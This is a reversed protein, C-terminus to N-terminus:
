FSSASPSSGPRVCPISASRGSAPGNASARSRQRDDDSRRAGNARSYRMAQWSKVRGNIAAVAAVQLLTPLGLDALATIETDSFEGTLRRLAMSIAEREADATLAHNLRIRAAWGVTDTDRGPFQLAWQISWSAEEIPQQRARRYRADLRSLRRVLDRGSM